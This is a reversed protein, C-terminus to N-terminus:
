STGQSTANKFCVSCPYMPSGPKPHVYGDLALLLLLPDFDPRTTLPETSYRTLTAAYSQSSEMFCVQDVQRRDQISSNVGIKWIFSRGRPREVVHMRPVNSWASSMRLANSVNLICLNVCLSCWVFMGYVM